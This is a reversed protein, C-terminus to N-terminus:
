DKMQLSFDLKSNLLVTFVFTAKGCGDELAGDSLEYPYPGCYNYLSLLILIYDFIDDSSCISQNNVACYM